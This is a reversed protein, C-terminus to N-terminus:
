EFLNVTFTLLGVIYGQFKKFGFSSKTQSTTLQFYLRVFELSRSRKLYVKVFSDKFVLFIYGACFMLDMSDILDLSMSFIVVGQRLDFWYM